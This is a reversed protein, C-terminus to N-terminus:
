WATNPLATLILLATFTVLGAARRMEGGTQAAGGCCGAFRNRRQDKGVVAFAATTTLMLPCPLTRKELAAGWLTRSFLMAMASAVLGTTTLAGSRGPKVLLAEPDDPSEISSVVDGPSGVVDVLLRSWTAGRRSGWYEHFLLALEERERPGAMMVSRGGCVGLPPLAGVEVVLAARGVGPRVMLLAYAGARRGCCNESFEDAWRGRLLEAVRLRRLGM